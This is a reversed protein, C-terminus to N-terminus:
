MSPAIPVRAHVTKTIALSMNLVIGEVIRGSFSVSPEDPVDLLCASISVSIFSRWDFNDDFLREGATTAAFWSNAAACAFTSSIFEILAWLDPFDYVGDYELEVDELVLEVDLEEDVEDGVGVGVGVGAGVGAGVGTQVVDALPTVVHM